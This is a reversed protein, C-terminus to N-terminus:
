AAKPIFFDALALRLTQIEAETEGLLIKASEKFGRKGQYDILRLRGTEPDIRINDWEVVWGSHTLDGHPLGTLEIVKRYNELFEEIQKSTIKGGRRKYEALSIGASKQIMGVIAEGDGDLKKITIIGTIPAIVQSFAEDEKYSIYFKIQEELQKQIIPLNLSNLVLYVENTRPNYFAERSASGGIRQLNIHTSEELLQHIIGPTFGSQPPLSSLNLTVKPVATIDAVESKDITAAESNGDGDVIKIYWM